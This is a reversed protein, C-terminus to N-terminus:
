SISKKRGPEYYERTPSHDNDRDPMIELICQCM